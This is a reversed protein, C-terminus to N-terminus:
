ESYTVGRNRAWVLAVSFLLLGNKDNAGLAHGDAVRLALSSPLIFFIYQVCLLGTVELAFPLLDSKWCGGSGFVSHACRVYM